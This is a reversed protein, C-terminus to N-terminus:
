SVFLYILIAIFSGVLTSVINVLENTFWAIGSKCIARNGCIHIVKDSYENCKLCYYKIQFVAGLLSDVKEGIFGSASTILLVQQYNAQPIDLLNFVTLMAVIAGIFLSGLLSAIEGLITIGGSVGKSIEEWPCIIFKPKRKSLVGIEVAWIDSTSTSIAGLFGITFLTQIPNDEVIVVSYLIKFTFFFLLLERELFRNTHGRQAIRQLERRLRINM